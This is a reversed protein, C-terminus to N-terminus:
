NNFGLIAYIHTQILTGGLTEGGVAFYFGIM